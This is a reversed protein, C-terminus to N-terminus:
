PAAPTIEVLFLSPVDGPYPGLAANVTIWGGDTGLLRVQAIASGGDRTLTERAQILADLDDPHILDTAGRDVPGTDDWFAVEPPPATVWYIVTPIDGTPTRYFCMVARSIDTITLGQSIVAILPDMEVKDWEDIDMVVGIVSHGVKKAAALHKRPGLSAHLLTVTGLFPAGGEAPPTNTLEIVKPLDAFQIVRGLIQDPSNSKVFAEPNPSWLATTDRTNEVQHTTTDWIIGAARPPPGPEGDSPGIWLLLAVVLHDNAVVQHAVMRKPSLRTPIRADFLPKRKRTDFPEAPCSFAHDLLKDLSARDMGYSRVIQSMPAWDRKQRDKWVVTPPASQNMREVLVWGLHAAGDHASQVPKAKGTM